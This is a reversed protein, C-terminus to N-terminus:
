IIKFTLPNATSTGGTGHASITVTYRGPKLMRRPNTIRGAFRVTNRGRKGHVTMTGVKKGAHRFTLTVTAPRELTFSFRTGTAPRWKTASQRVKGLRPAAARITYTVSRTATQDDRSTATVTFTHQGVTTDVPGAACSEIGPGFAGDACNYSATLHSGAIYTTAAPTQIQVTPPAAVVYTITATATKQDASTATVTYQHIGPSSTDLTGSTGHAGTSDACSSIGPGGTTEACAFVTTVASGEAVFAGPQPATITVTPPQIEWRITVSPVDSASATEFVTGAAGMSSGAGGGGADPNQNDSGGGGYYGGGGGAGHCNGGNGGAGLTGAAAVCGFFVSGAAGGSTATGGGGGSGSPGAGAGGDAVDPQGIELPGAGGAGGTSTPTVTGAGGGGGGAAVLLRSALSGGALRSVTRVDSAGGGGAGSTQGDGGGNFGGTAPSSTGAQGPGGVEVFLPVTADFALTVAARAGMGGVGLNANGGPAGISLVNISHVDSVLPGGFTDEVAATYTCSGISGSIAYAGGTGCPM